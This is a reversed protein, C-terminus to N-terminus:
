EILADIVEPRGEMEEIRKDVENLQKLLAKRTAYLDKGGVKDINQANDGINIQVAMASSHARGGLKNECEWKTRIVSLKDKASSEDSNLIDSLVQTLKDDTLGKDEFVQALEKSIVPHHKLQYGLSYESNVGKVDYGADLVAKGANGNNEIYAKKFRRQKLTLKKKNTNGVSNKIKKKNSADKM